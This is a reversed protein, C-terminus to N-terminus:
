STVFHEADEQRRSVLCQACGLWGSGHVQMHLPCQTVHVSGIENTAGIYAKSHMYMCM